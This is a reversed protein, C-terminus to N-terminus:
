TSRVAVAYANSFLASAVVGTIVNAVMGAVVSPVENAVMGAAEGAVETQKNSM